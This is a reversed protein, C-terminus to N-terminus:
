RRGSVFDCWWEIGILFFRWDSFVEPRNGEVAHGLFQCAFGLPMMVAPLTWLGDVFLAAGWLVASSVLLPIGVGHLRRNWTNQHAAEFQAMLEDHPRGNLM